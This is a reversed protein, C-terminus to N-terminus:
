RRACIARQGDAPFEADTASTQRSAAEPPTFRRGSEGRGARVARSYARDTRAPWYGQAFQRGRPEHAGRRGLDGGARGDVANRLEDRHRQIPVHGLRHRDASLPKSTRRAFPHHWAPGPAPAGRRPRCIIALVAARTSDEGLARNKLLLRAKPLQRLIRAWVGGDGREDQSFHQFLRLHNGKAGAGAPPRGTAGIRHSLLLSFLGAISCADETCFKESGPPDALADSLRYDITGCGTTNPYGLYTIQVPAPKRAFVLLRNGNTHGALDVLIDIGDRRIQEAVLEDDQSAIIRWHHAYGNLRETTQDSHGFNAYCFVEVQAPDHQALLSELFLGRFARLFGAFCLRHALPSRPSRDNGHPQILQKLTEAHLANWKRSQMLIGRRDAVAHYHLALLLNDHASVFQPNLKLAKRYCAIADEILGKEQWINGLNKHAQYLGPKMALARQYCAAAQDLQAKAVWNNGLNYHAEALDPKLQVARQLCAIAGETNRQLTLVNGLDSHYAAVNPSVAIARSILEAAAQLQGSQAATVGLHHLVDPCNTHQQAMQLHYRVAPGLSASNRGRQGDM